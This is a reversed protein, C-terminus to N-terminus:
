FVPAPYAEAALCVGAPMDSVNYIPNGTFTNYGELLWTLRQIYQQRRDEAGQWFRADLPCYSIREEEDGHDDLIRVRTVQMETRAVPNDQNGHFEGWLGGRDAIVQGATVEDGEKVRLGVLHDLEVEWQPGEHPIITVASDQSSVDVRHVVGNIPSIVASLSGLNPAIYYEFNPIGTPSPHVGGCGDLRSAFELFISKCRWDDNLHAVPYFPFAGMHSPPNLTDYPQDPMHVALNYLVPPDQETTTKLSNEKCGALMLLITFVSLLGQLLSHKIIM